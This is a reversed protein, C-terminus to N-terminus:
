NKQAFRKICGAFNPAFPELTNEEHRYWHVPYDGSKASLDFVFVDGGDTAAFMVGDVEADDGELHSVQGRRYNKFDLKQPPLVTTTSGEMNCVDAFSKPGVTTIFDRYDQPLTHKRKEEVAAFAVPKLGKKANRKLFQKFWKQAANAAKGAVPKPTDVFGHAALLKLKEEIWAEDEPTTKVEKFDCSRMLQRKVEARQLLQELRVSFYLERETGTRTWRQPHPPPKIGWHSWPLPPLGSAQERYQNTQEYDDEVTRGSQWELMKFVDIGGSNFRKMQSWFTGM